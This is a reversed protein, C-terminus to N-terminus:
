RRTIHAVLNLILGSFEYNKNSLLVVKTKILKHEFYKKFYINKTGKLDYRLSGSCKNKLLKTFPRFLIRNPRTM